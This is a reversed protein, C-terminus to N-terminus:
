HFEREYIARDEEVGLDAGGSKERHEQYQTAAVTPFKAELSYPIARVGGISPLQGSSAETGRTPDNALDHFVRIGSRYQFPHSSKARKQTPRTEVPAASINFDRRRMSRCVEGGGRRSVGENRIGFRVDLPRRSSFDRPMRAILFLPSTDDDRQIVSIETAM